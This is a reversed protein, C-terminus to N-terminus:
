LYSLITEPPSGPPPLGSGTGMPCAPSLSCPWPSLSSAQCSTLGTPDRSSSHSAPGCALSQTPLRAREAAQFREGQYGARGSHALQGWPSTSHM